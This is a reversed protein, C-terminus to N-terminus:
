FFTVNNFDHLVDKCSFSDYLKERKIIVILIITLMFVMVLLLVLKDEELVRHSFSSYAAGPRVSMNRGDEVEIEKGINPVDEMAKTANDESAQKLKDEMGNIEVITLICINLLFCAKIDM